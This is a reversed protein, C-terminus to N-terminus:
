EGEYELIGVREVLNNDLVFKNRIMLAEKQTDYTGLFFKEGNNSIKISVTNYRTIFLNIYRKNFTKKPIEEKEKYKWIFKYATKQAGSLAKSINKQGNKHFQKGAETVSIYEGVLNMNLDYQFVPKSSVEFSKEMCKQPMKSGQRILSMKLKTENSALIPKKSKGILKKSVMERRLKSHQYETSVRYASKSLNLLNDFDTKLILDEIERCNDICGKFLVEINLEKIKNYYDQLPICHHINNKLDNKHELIRRHLNKSSGVYYKGINPFTIIYVSGEIRNNM